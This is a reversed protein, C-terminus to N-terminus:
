KGHGQVRVAVSLLESSVKLGSHEAATLSVEFRIHHDVSLFNVCSGDSLGHDSASVVLVPRNGVRSVLSKLEDSLEPGVFLIQATGLEDLKKLRRAHVPLSGVTHNPVLRQLAHLVADSGMVAITFDRHTGGSEPWDVYGAIRYLYAAEVEDQEPMETTHATRPGCLVAWFVAALVTGLIRERKATTLM